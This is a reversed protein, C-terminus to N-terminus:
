MMGGLTLSSAKSARSNSFNMGSLSVVTGKAPAKLKLRGALSTLLAEDGIVVPNAVRRVRRSGLAKLVIEPGVGVPDGMTIAVTPKM